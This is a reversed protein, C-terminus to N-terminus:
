LEFTPSKSEKTIRDVALRIRDSSSAAEDIPTRGFNDVAHPDAGNACLWEVIDELGREVSVHLATRGGYDAQNISVGAAKWAQLTQIDEQSAALALETGLFHNFKQYKQYFVMGIRVAPAIIHAGAKRLAGIVDLNKSRIAAQLANERESDRFNFEFVGFIL